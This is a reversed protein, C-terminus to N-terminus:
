QNQKTGESADIFDLLLTVNKSNAKWTADFFDGVLPISGVLFDIGINMLMKLKLRLPLNYKRAGLLITISLIATVLDGVVPILGLIFDWGVRYRTFPVRFCNDLLYAKRQLTRLLQIGIDDSSGDSGGTPHRM